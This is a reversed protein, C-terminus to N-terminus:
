EAIREIIGTPDININDHLNVKRSLKYFVDSTRLGHM